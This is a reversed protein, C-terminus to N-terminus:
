TISCDMMRLDCKEALHFGLCEDKLSTSALELFRIQSKVALRTGPDDIQQQTLGAERLLVDVQIGERKAREYALRTLIGMASPFTALDGNSDHV